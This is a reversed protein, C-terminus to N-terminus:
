GDEAQAAAAAEGDEIRQLIRSRNRESVAPDELMWEYGDEKLAVFDFLQQQYKLMKPESELGCLAQLTPVDLKEGSLKWCTEHIGISDEFGEGIFFCEGDEPEIAGDSCPGRGEVEGEWDLAIAAKLWEHEPKFDFASEDDPGRYIKLYMSDESKVYHDHQM